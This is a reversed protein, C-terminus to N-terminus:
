LLPNNKKFHEKQQKSFIPSQELYALFQNLAQNYVRNGKFTKCSELFLEYYITNEPYNRKLWNIHEMSKQEDKLSYLYIKALFYHTETKIFPFDSKKLHELIKLGNTKDSAPWSSLYGRYIFNTERAEQAYFHYLGWLLQNYENKNNLPYQQFFTKLENLALLASLPKNLTIYVRSKLLLLSVKEYMDEPAIREMADLANKLNTEPQMGSLAKWYQLYPVFVEDNSFPAQKFQYHYINLCATDNKYFVSQSWSAKAFVLLFLVM